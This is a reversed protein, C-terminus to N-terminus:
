RGRAAAGDTRDELSERKGTAHIAAACYCRSSARRCGHEIECAEGLLYVLEERSAVQLPPETTM